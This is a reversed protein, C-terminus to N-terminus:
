CASFMQSDNAERIFSRMLSRLGSHQPNAPFTPASASPRATQLPKSKRRTETDWVKGNIKDTLEVLRDGLRRDSADYSAPLNPRRARYDNSDFKVSKTM